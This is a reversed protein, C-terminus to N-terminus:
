REDAMAYGLSFDPVATSYGFESVHRVFRELWSPIEPEM